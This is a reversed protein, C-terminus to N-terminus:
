RRHHLLVAASAISIRPQDHCSGIFRAAISRDMFFSLAHPVLFVFYNGRSHPIPCVDGCRPIDIKHIDGILNVSCLNREYTLM